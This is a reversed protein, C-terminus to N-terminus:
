NLCKSYLVGLRYVFNWGFGPSNRDVSHIHAASGSLFYVYSLKLQVIFLWLTVTAPLKTNSDKRNGSWIFQGHIWGQNEFEYLKKMEADSGSSIHSLNCSWKSSKFDGQRWSADRVVELPGQVPAKSSIFSFLLSCSTKLFAAPNLAGFIHSYM